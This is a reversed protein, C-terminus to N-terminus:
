FLVLIKSTKSVSKQSRGVTRPDFGPFFTWSWSFSILPSHKFDLSIKRLWGIRSSSSAGSFIQPSHQSNQNSRPPPTLYICVKLLSCHWISSESVLLSVLLYNYCFAFIFGQQVHLASSHLPPLMHSNYKPGFYDLGLFCSTWNWWAPPSIRM